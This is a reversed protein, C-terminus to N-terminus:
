ARVSRARRAGRHAGVQELWRALLPRGAQSEHAEPHFQIGEIPLTEHRLGMLEGSPAHATPVLWRPLTSADVALSHYRAVELPRPLGRFLGCDDHTVLSTKGHLPERAREVSAGAALAIAQHGLCVGLMPLALAEDLVRSVLPLLVGAERPTCPGPSLLVGDADWALCADVDLADSKVVDCTAGLEALYQALMFTFSDYSDLVLVVLGEGPRAAELAAASVGLTAEGEVPVRTEPGIREISPLTASM